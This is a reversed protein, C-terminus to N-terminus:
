VGKCVKFLTAESFGTVERIQALTNGAARLARIEPTRKELAVSIRNRAKPVSPMFDLGNKKIQEVFGAIATEAEEQSFYGGLGKKVTKLDGNGHGRSMTRTVYWKGDRGDCHLGIGYGYKGQGYSRYIMRGRRKKQNEEHTLEQLNDPANNMPEDDRHDIVKDADPWRGHELFWVVHSHPASVINGGFGFNLFTSVYMGEFRLNGTSRDLKATKRLLEMFEPDHKSVKKRM